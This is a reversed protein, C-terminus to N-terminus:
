SAGQLASRLAAGDVYEELRTILGREDVCAVVCAELEVGLEPFRVTHQECFAGPQTVRRVHAYEWSGFRDRIRQWGESAEAVDAAPPGPYSQLRAGPAFMAKAAEWDNAQTAAFFAAAVEAPDPTRAAPHGPVASLPPGPPTLVTGQGLPAFRPARREVFSRVGEELDPGLLSEDVLPITEAEADPLAMVAHRGVQQKIAAISAPSCHEALYRAYTMAADLESGAPHLQNVLGLRLAEEGMVRRASILLDLATARGVVQPLLWSIGHEAVLGRASFATTFVATDAAFRLDCMLAVVLGLGAASGNVAAILPKPFDLPRLFSSADMSTPAEGSAQVEDLLSMDAGACFHRGQGTVVVARVAPDEALRDLAALFDHHLEASWTNAQEPRQFTLVAVGERVEQGLVATTATTM